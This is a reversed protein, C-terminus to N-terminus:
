AKIAAKYEKMLPECAKRLETDFDKFWDAKRTANLFKTIKPYKSFDYETVDIENLVAALDLDALTPKDGFLYTSTKFYIKEIESLADELKKAEEETPKRKELFITSFQRVSLASLSSTIYYLFQDVKARKKLDKPYLYDHKAQAFKNFLYVLIARSEVLSFGGDIIAPVKQHPNIKAYDSSKQEGTLLNIPKLSLKLDLLKSAYLISRCFPSLISYYYDISAM